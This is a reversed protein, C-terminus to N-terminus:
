SIFTSSSGAGRGISTFGTPDATRHRTLPHVYGPDEGAADVAPHLSGQLEDVLALIWEHEKQAMRVDPSHEARWPYKISSHVARMLM